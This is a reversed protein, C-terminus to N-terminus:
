VYKRIGMGTYRCLVEHPRINLQGAIEDETLEDGLLVVEDGPRDASDIGIICTNMGVELIERRRGNICVPGRQLGNAYGGQLVGIQSCELRTYGVPGNTARTELLPGSARVAGRYLALGPRVADLWASPSDLLATAAAHIRLPRENRLCRLLEASSADVAHTFLETASSRALLEDLQEPLCGFRRMGTDVNIAAPVGAYRDAEALTSLAPRVKLRRYEDPNGDPPGLILGPRKAERAEDLTFFAFEDAIDELAEAIRVAGLGYADAKIVAILDVGTNARIQRASQRIRDLDITVTIANSRM